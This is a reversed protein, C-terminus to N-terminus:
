AASDPDFHHLAREHQGGMESSSTSIRRGNAKSCGVPRCNDALAANYQRFTGVMQATIKGGRRLNRHVKPYGCEREAPTGRPSKSNGWREAMTSGIASGDIAQLTRHQKGRANNRSPPSNTGPRALMDTIPRFRWRAQHTATITSFDLLRRNPLPHQGRRKVTRIKSGISRM